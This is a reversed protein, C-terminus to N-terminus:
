VINTGKIKNEKKKKKNIMKRAPRHVDSIAIAFLRSRADERFARDSHGGRFVGSLWRVNKQHNETLLNVPLMM